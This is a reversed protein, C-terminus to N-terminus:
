QAPNTVPVAAPLSAPDPRHKARLFQVLQLVEDHSLSDKFSPMKQGGNEIQDEIRAARMSRRVTALSPGKPTGDAKTGHCYACGKDRFLVAGAQVKSQAPLTTATSTFLLLAPIAPLFRFPIRM